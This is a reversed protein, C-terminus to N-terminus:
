SCLRESAQLALEREDVLEAEGPEEEEVVLHELDCPLARALHAAGIGWASKEWRAAPASAGDARDDAVERAERVDIRDRVLEREPAEEVALQGRDRVDVEVERAVDALLEDDAHGLAVTALM